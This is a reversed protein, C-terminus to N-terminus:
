YTELEDDSVGALSKVDFVKFIRNLIYEDYRLAYGDMISAWFPPLNENSTIDEAIM